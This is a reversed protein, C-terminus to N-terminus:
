FEIVAAPQFRPAIQGPYGRQNSFIRTKGLQYDVGHHPHGHVWPAV